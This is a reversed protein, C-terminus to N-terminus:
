RRPLPKKILYSGGVYEFDKNILRVPGFLGPPALKIVQAIHEFTFQSADNMELLSDRPTRDFSGFPTCLGLWEQVQPPLTWRFGDYLAPSDQTPLTVTLQADGLHVSNFLECAVGFPSYGRLTRLDTGHDQTYSPSTLAEAWMLQPPTLVSTSTTM